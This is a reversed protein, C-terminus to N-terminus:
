ENAGTLERAAIYGFTMAPGLTVGAGPYSEGMPSATTNGTAYLGPIPAGSESLVQARENTVIGGNTGIDGPYIPLAYFPAETLSRLCPNPQHRYDGYMRDYAAEGRHFDPDQGKDAHQNFRAITVTLTAPDVGMATALEEITRGKKLIAKVAGPQAWDPIVPFLPGMPFQRRYRGDFVMWSPSADGHAAHRRAMIQGTVHYSAAENLYRQGRQNVMICGPLAREITCLRGRDEGPVYFVPAAWASQLNRTAAGLATAAAIGDGTNSGVGGSLHTERYLPANAERMAKNKDFGGSALVVGKRTRIRFPKGDKEVVIGVVRGDEHVLEQMPTRLWVQGGAANLAHRLGGTLANGLTLRRDKATSFRRPWDLWYRALMRGMTKWWGPGRYLLAYTEAFTWNITGWLSAAPSPFRQTNLDPGLLAGDFTEPLHTRYGTISGGENEAHYDPYPQATYVVETNATVWRLMSAANDVFARIQADPVNDASLARVYRFAADLDDNFGAARAQDSGPIWIGGGSTASTGGWCRDKEVVLVDARNSAAVLATLLGGAGSGVVVIDVDKDWSM